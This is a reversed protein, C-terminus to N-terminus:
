TSTVGASTGIYLASKTAHLKPLFKPDDRWQGPPPGYLKKNQRDIAEIMPGVELHKMAHIAIQIENQQSQLHGTLRNETEGKEGGIKARQRGVWSQLRDYFAM